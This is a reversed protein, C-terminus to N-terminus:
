AHSGRKGRKERLQNRILRSLVILLALTFLLGAVQANSIVADPSWLQFATLLLTGVAVLGLSHQKRFLKEPEVPPSAAPTREAPTTLPKKRKSKDM